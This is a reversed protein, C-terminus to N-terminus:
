AKHEKVFYVGYVSILIGLIILILEKNSGTNPVVVEKYNTITIKQNLNNKDITVQYKNTDLKYGEPANVEEITYTGYELDTVKHPTNTSLYEDILNNDKYVKIIAGELNSGTENDIKSITIIGKSEINTDKNDNDKNIVKNDKNENNNDNSKKNSVVIPIITSKNIKNKKNILMSLHSMSNDVPIYEIAKYENGTSEVVVKMNTIDKKISDIPVLIKFSDFKDFSYKENGNTDVVVAGLPANELNVKYTFNGKQDKLRIEESIYNNDQKSMSIQSNDIKYSIETNNPAKKADTVLKKAEKIIVHKSKKIKTSLNATGKTDDLYWYIATQTIYYDRKYDGTIEKNPYGNQMIYAIGDDLKKGRNAVIKDKSKNNADLSYLYTGKAEKTKIKLGKVYVPIDTSKTLKISTKADSAEVKTSFTLLLVLIILLVHKFKKMNIGRDFTGTNYCMKAYKELIELVQLKIM